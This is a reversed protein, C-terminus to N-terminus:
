YEIIKYDGLKVDGWTIIIEYFIAIIIPILLLGIGSVLMWFLWSPTPNTYCQNAIQQLM